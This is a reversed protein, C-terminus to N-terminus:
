FIHNEDLLQKSHRITLVSIFNDDIRYIIRYNGEIIERIDERKIEPVIRGFKPFKVLKNVSQQISDTWKLADMPKDLSIFDAYEELKDVAIETWIVKM